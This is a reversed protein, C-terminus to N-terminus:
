IHILSLKQVTGSYASMMQEMYTTVAGSIQTQLEEDDVMDSIGQTIRKQADETQLYALFSSEMQGPDPKAHEGAYAQYGEMLKESLQDLQEQTAEGDPNNKFVDEAWQNLIKQADETRLYEQFSEGLQSYDNQSNGALYQQYGELLSSVMDQVAKDAGDIQITESLESMDPAEIKSLSKSLEDMDMLESLDLSKSLEEPDFGQRKYM